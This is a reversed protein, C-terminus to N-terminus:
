PEELRAIVEGDVTVLCPLAKKVQAATKLKSLPVRSLRSDPCIM